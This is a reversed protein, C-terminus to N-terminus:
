EAGVAAMFEEDSEAHLNALGAGIPGTGAEPRVDGQDNMAWEPMGDGPQPHITREIPRDFRAGVIRDLTEQQRALQQQQARAMEILARQGELFATELTSQQRPRTSRWHEIWAWM